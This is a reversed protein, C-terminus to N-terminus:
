HGGLAARADAILVRAAPSVPGDARWALVLRARLPPRTVAIAHLEAPRAVAVSEPLIAVGLGEAALQAVVRPDGVEFAIRPTVGAAACAQDLCARIGSGVPQTILDRDRLGALTISTRGALPDGPAVAAVLSEHLVVDIAIDPPADGALGILALDLDGTRLADVLEDSSATSLTIEVAPHARHFHALVGALDVDGPSVIMGVTVSGRMLGTVEDVAHRVGAVGDLVARAHPLVAAGVDTPRVTRDSRDLLEHGLERELKRIQASVGPQAVHLRAAARTFSAEDAVAVLYELQHIEMLVSELSLRSYTKSKQM